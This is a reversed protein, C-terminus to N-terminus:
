TMVQRHGLFRNDFHKMTKIELIQNRFNLIWIYANRNSSTSCGSLPRKGPCGTYAPVLFTFRLTERERKQVSRLDTLALELCYVRLEGFKMWMRESGASNYGFAHVDNFRTVFYKWYEAFSARRTIFFVSHELWQLISTVADSVALVNIVAHCLVSTVCACPWTLLLWMACVASRLDALALLFRRRSKITCPFIVVASVGVM